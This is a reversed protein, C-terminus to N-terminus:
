NESPAPSTMAPHSWPTGPMLTPPVRLSMMGEASPYPSRPAPGMGGLAFRTNSTVISLVGQLLDHPVWSRAARGSPGMFFPKSFCTSHDMVQVAIPFTAGGPPEFGCTSDILPSGMTTIYSADALEDSRRM